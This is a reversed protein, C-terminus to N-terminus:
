MSRITSGDAIYKNAATTTHSSAPSARHLGITADIVQIANLYVTSLRELAAPHGINCNTITIYRNRASCDIKAGTPRGPLGPTSLTLYQRGVIDAPRLLYALPRNWCRERWKSLM